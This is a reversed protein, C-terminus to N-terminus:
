VKIIFNVTLYPPLNANTGSSGDDASTGSVSRDGVNYNPFDITGSFTHTHNQSEGGTDGTIAHNHEGWQNTTVPLVNLPNGWISSPAHSDEILGLEGGGTAAAVYLSTTHGHEGDLATALTGDDHTHGRNNANTTGSFNVNGHDHDISVAFTGPGHSHTVVIADASGGNEGLTNSWSASGKGVPFRSRLDPLLPNSATGGYATGIVAALDPYQTASIASGDCLLWGSPVSSGAFMQIIGSPLVSDVYGKNAAENAATPTPVVLPASMQVSGDRNIIETQLHSQILTFNYNVDVADAVTDNVISRLPSMQAM